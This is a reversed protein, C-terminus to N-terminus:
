DLDVHEDLTPFLEIFRELMLMQYPSSTLQDLYYLAKAHIWGSGWLPSLREYLPQLPHPHTLVEFLVQVVKEPTQAKLLTCLARAATFQLPNTEGEERCRLLRHSADPSPTLLYGRCSPM